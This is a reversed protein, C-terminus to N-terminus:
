GSIHLKSRYWEVTRKLGVEMPVRQEFGMLNRAQKIDACRRVDGGSKSADFVVNGKFGTFRTILTVLEKVSIETGSGINVYNPPNLKEAALVMGEAVDEAYLFDRTPSGDGWVILEQDRFCKMITAPIVHSLVPDLSDRPGYANASYVVVLPFRYERYFLDAVLALNRKMWGVSRHADSPLGDFLSMEQLPSPATAAYAFLNGLAVFKSVGAQRAAEVMNLDILTSIFYQQAPHKRTFSIGGTAAALHFVVNCGEVARRCNDFQRLDLEASRPIIIDSSSIGRKLILNEVVYSGIFGNGGTVLVKKNAWFISKAM